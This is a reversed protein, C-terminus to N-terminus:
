RPAMRLAGDLRVVEGNLYRNEVMHMVLAAYEDPDGLLKPFPVAAALSQQVDERLGGLMPTRFIGPAISTVRIGFQALERAAPMVMAVIGGKSASYAAQGIQGEYAAVSATMVIIGREQAELPPLTTMDAAALRMANFTGILNVKIIREFQELPMPGEKGVIRGGKGIGACNVLIRAAGHAERAEKIANATSDSDSVDCRVAFGGIKQAVERAADMNVDLLTVKCGAAALRKATAAGLGSGGGTVLAAHGKPNM